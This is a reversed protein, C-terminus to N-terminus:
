KPPPPVGHLIATILGWVATVGGAVYMVWKGFAGLGGLVKFGTKATDLIDRVEKTIATNENLAEGQKLLQEAQDRQVKEISEFRQDGNELRKHVDALASRILSLDEYTNAPPNQDNAM